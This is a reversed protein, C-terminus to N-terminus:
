DSVPQAPRGTTGAGLEAARDRAATALEQDGAHQAIDRYAAGARKRDGKQEYLAAARALATLRFPDEKVRHGAAEEYARLAGAADGQTERFQGLRCLVEVRLAAEPAAALAQEYEAVAEAQRGSDAHLNGLEV